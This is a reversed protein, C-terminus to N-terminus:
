APLEPLARFLSEVNEVFRVSAEEIQDLYRRGLESSSGSPDGWVGSRSARPLTGRGSFFFASVMAPTPEVPFPPYERVALELDVLSEDVALVASTEGVNAHLGVDSGLYAALEDPPLADWYNFPFAMTGKPLQQGIEMIAASLVISNTYHGNVLVIERFGGDALSLVVDQVLATMTSASVFPIGPYGRHDGSVGYTLTPAVLADRRRALRVSVETALISDTGFPAHPGHQETAGVPVIVKPSRRLQEEVDVLTCESLLIRPRRTDHREAM